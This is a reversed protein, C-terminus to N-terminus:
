SMRRLSLFQESAVWGCATYVTREGFISVVSRRKQILPHNEALYSAVLRPATVFM